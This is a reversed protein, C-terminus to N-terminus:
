RNDAFIALIEEDTLKASVEELKRKKKIQSLKSFASLFITWYKPNKLLMQILARKHESFLKKSTINKWIFFLQNRQAIKSVSSKSFNLSIVGEETYHNVLAKTEWLNIYGRKM